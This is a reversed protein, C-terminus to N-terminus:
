HHVGHQQPHPQPGDVSVVADALVLCRGSSFERGDSRMNFVPKGTPGPWSWRREVLQVLVPPAGNTDSTLVVGTGPPRAAVTPVHAALFPGLPMAHAALYQRYASRGRSWTVLAAHATAGFVTLVVGVVALTWIM